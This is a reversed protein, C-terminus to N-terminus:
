LATALDRGIMALRASSSYPSFIPEIPSSRVGLSTKWSKRSACWLAYSFNHCLGVGVVPSLIPKEV